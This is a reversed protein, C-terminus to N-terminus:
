SRQIYHEKVIKRVVPKLIMFIFYGVFGGCTNTILDTVDFTRQNLSGLWVSLLQFSEIALSFLFTLAITSFVGKNKIIPYLFGFPIMMLVNLYAERVAGYYHLKIDRFPEFNATEMFLPNTAGTPITIPMITVFLVMVIYVYMMTNLILVTKGRKRWKDFFIFFYILALFVFNIVYDLKM